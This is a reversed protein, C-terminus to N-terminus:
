AFAQIYEANWMTTSLFVPIRRKKNELALGQSPYREAFSIVLQWASNLKAIKIAVKFLLQLPKFLKGASEFSKWLLSRYFKCHNDLYAPGVETNHEDM